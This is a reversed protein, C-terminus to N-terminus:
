ASQAAMRPEDLADGLESIMTELRRREAESVTYIRPLLLLAEAYAREAKVYLEGSEMNAGLRALALGLKLRNCVLAALQRDTKERLRQLKEAESASNM